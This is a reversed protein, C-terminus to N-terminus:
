WGNDGKEDKKNGNPLLKGDADKKSPEKGKLSDKPSTNEKAKGKEAASPAGTGKAM